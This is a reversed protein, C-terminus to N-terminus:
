TILDADFVSLGKVWTKIADFILIAAHKHYSKQPLQYFYPARVLAM